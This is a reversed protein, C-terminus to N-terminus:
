GTLRMAFLRSKTFKGKIKWHEHMLQWIDVIIPHVGLMKYIMMEFM